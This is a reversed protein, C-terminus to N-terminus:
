RTTNSMFMRKSFFPVKVLLQAQDDEEQVYNGPDSDVDAQDYSMVQMDVVSTGRVLTQAKIVLSVTEGALVDGVLWYNPYAPLNYTGRQPISSM